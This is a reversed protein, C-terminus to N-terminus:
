PTKLLEFRKREASWEVNLGDMAGNSASRLKCCEITVYTPRQMSLFFGRSGDDHIEADRQGSALYAGTREIRYLVKYADATTSRIELRSYAPVPLNPTEPMREGYLFGVVQGNAVFTHLLTSAPQGGFAGSEVILLSALLVIRPTYRGLQAAARRPWKVLLKDNM